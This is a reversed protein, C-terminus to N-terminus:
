ELLRHHKGYGDIWIKRFLKGPNQIDFHKSPAFLFLGYGHGRPHLDRNAQIMNSIREESKTVILIRVKKFGFYHSFLENKHSAIYGVMKKYFSSRFFNSRKIPMTARDAELFFYTEKFTNGKKVRLGFVSDPIM